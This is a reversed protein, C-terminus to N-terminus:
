KKAIVMLANARGTIEKNNYNDLELDLIKKYNEQNSLKNQIVETSGHVYTEDMGPYIFNPGGIVKIDSFGAAHYLDIAEQPTFCHIAPMSDNFKIKSTKVVKDLEELRNTLISFYYAHYKNALISIHVGGNKLKKNIELLAKRPNEVFSIVNYFSISLDYHNDLIEPMNEINGLIFSFNNALKNKIFKEKAVSLMKESIDILDGRLTYKGSFLEHMFMTWRGTGAGADLINLTDVKFFIPIEKKLIEKFFNDSLVWYLQSDVDDYSSAKSNFYNKVEQYYNNM